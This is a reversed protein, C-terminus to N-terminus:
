RREMRTSCDICVVEDGTWNVENTGCNPCRWDASDHETTGRPVHLVGADLVARVVGPMRRKKYRPRHALYAPESPDPGHLDDWAVESGTNRSVHTLLGTAAEFPPRTAWSLPDDPAAEVYREAARDYADGAADSGAIAFADGVFEEFVAREVAERRVHDRQEEALLVAQECRNRGRDDHGALRSCLAATLLYGLAYGVYGRGDPDFTDRDHDASGSLEAYSALAYDDGAAAYEGDVLHTVAADRHENGM